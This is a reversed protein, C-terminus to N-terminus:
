MKIQEEIWAKFHSVRAFVQYAKLIDCDPSGWSVVGQLEWRGGNKCVFPGGSDGHCGSVKGWSGTKKGACLMADTIQIHLNKSNRAACDENSVVPLRGQQLKPYMFGRRFIKGWGTIYCQAGIPPDGSSLCAPHVHSNLQAPRSLKLLAIDNNHLKKSYDPHLIMREVAIDVEFGEKRGNYHEGVRVTFKEPSDKERYICHAATIVWEPHILTGGCMGFKNRLLLIQWPWSGPRAEKGGIIRSAKIAPDGCTTATAASFAAVLLIFVIKICAM